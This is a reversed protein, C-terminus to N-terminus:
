REREIPVFVNLVHGLAHPLKHPREFSVRRKNLQREIRGLYVWWGRLGSRFVELVRNFSSQKEVFPGYKISRLSKEEVRVRVVPGYELEVFECYAM